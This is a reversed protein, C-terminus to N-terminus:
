NLLVIHRPKLTIYLGVSEPMADNTTIMVCYQDKESFYDTVIGIAGNFQNRKTLGEILVQAGIPFSHNSPEKPESDIEIADDKRAREIWDIEL